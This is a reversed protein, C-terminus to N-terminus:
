FTFLFIFPLLCSNLSPNWCAAATVLSHSQGQSCRRRYPVCFALQLWLHVLLLGLPSSFMSFAMTARDVYGPDVEWSICCSDASYISKPTLDLSTLHLQIIWPRSLNICVHCTLNFQDPGSHRKLEGGAKATGLSKANSGPRIRYASTHVCM